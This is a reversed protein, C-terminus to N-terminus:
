IKCTRGFPFASGRSSRGYLILVLTIFSSVTFFVEFIRTLILHGRAQSGPPVSAASATMSDYDAGEGNYFNDRFWKLTMGGAPCWGILFYKGPIAHYQVALNSSPVTPYADITECM